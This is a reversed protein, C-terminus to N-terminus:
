ELKKLLGFTYDKDCLEKLSLIEGEELRELLHFVIATDGTQMEVTLRRYEIETELLESLFIATAEHGVASVFTNNQLNKKAELTSIKDYRYLGFNTLIPGNLVYIMTNIIVSKPLNEVRGNVNIAFQDPRSSKFRRGSSGWELASGTQAVGRM